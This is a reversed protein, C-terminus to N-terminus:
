MKCYLSFCLNFSESSIIFSHRDQRVEEREQLFISLRRQDLFHVKELRDVQYIKLEPEHEHEHKEHWAQIPAAGFFTNTGVHILARHQCSLLERKEKLISVVASSSSSTRSSFWCLIRSGKRAQLPQYSTVQLKNKNRGYWKM